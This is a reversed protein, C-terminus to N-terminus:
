VYQSTIRKKQPVTKNEKDKHKQEMLEYLTDALTFIDGAVALAEINGDYAISSYSNAKQLEKKAQVLSHEFIDKKPQSIEYAYILPTGDKLLITAENHKLVADLRRLDPNQSEIIPRNKKTKSGFLWGLFEGLDEMKDASVPYEVNDKQIDLYNQIGEYGLATSLHSFYLRNGWVDAADFVNNEEAQKIVRFGQYLKQVTQNTDGIQQAIAKLPIKFEKHIRSIYQAKAYGGWKAAGNIHKYGIFRWSQERSIVKIAPLNRIQSKIETSVDFVVKSNILGEITEPNLIAKVAALRRNGEIVIKCLVGGRNEEMVILQEHPFFGSAAISLVIEDVAMTTWLIQLIESESSNENISFEALRPNEYDFHLESAPINQIQFNM